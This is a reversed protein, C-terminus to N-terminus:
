GGSQLFIFGEIFVSIMFKAERRKKKKKQFDQIPKPVISLITLHLRNTSEEGQEIPVKQSYIM